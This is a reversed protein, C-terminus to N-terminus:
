VKKKEKEFYSLKPRGFFWLASLIALDQATQRQFATLFSEKTKKQFIIISLLSYVLSASTMTLQSSIEHCWVISSCMHLKPMLEKAARAQHKFKGGFSKHCALHCWGGSHWLRSPNPVAPPLRWMDDMKILTVTARGGWSVQQFSLRHTIKRRM